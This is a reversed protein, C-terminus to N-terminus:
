SAVVTTGSAAGAAAGPSGPGPPGGKDVCLYTLTLIFFIFFVYQEKETHGESNGNVEEVQVLPWDRLRRTNKTYSTIFLLYSFMSYHISEDAAAEAMAQRMEIIEWIHDYQHYFSDAQDAEAHRAVAARHAGDFQTVRNGYSDFVPYGIERYDQAERGIVQLVGQARDLVYFQEENPHARVGASVLPNQFSSGPQSPSM